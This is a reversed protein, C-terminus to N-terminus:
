EEAAPDHRATTIKAQAAWLAYELAEETKGRSYLYLGYVLAAEAHDVSIRLPSEPLIPADDVFYSIPLKLRAAVIALARLSISSRGSEVLSLFGRSLETGGLQALSM